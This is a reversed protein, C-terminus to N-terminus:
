HSGRNAAAAMYVFLPKGESRKRDLFQYPAFLSMQAYNNRM